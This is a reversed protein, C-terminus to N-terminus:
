QAFTLGCNKSIWESLRLEDAIRARDFGRQPTLALHGRLLSALSFRFTSSGISNGRHDKLIRDEITRNSPKKPCIGVYLLSWPKLEPSPRCLPIEPTADVMREQNIWWAYFGPIRPPFVASSLVPMTTLGSIIGEIESAPQPLTPTTTATRAINPAAVIRSWEALLVQSTQRSFLRPYNRTRGHIQFPTIASGDKKRYSGRRNVENALETTSLPHDLERLIEVIAKHLTM